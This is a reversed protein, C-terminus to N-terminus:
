KWKRIDESIFLEELVGQIKIAETMEEIINELGKTKSLNKANANQNLNGINTNYYKIDYEEILIKVINRVYGLRQEKSYSIPFIIENKKLTKKKNFINRFISFEIKDSLISIDIYVIKRLEEM